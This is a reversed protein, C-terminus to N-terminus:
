DIRLKTIKVTKSFDKFILSVFYIGSPLDSIEKGNLMISYPRSQYERSYVLGGAMNYISVNVPFSSRSSFYIEIRDKFFSPTHIAVSLKDLFGSNVEEIEVASECITTEALSYSFIDFNIDQITSTVSQCSPAVSMVTPSCSTITPIVNQGICSSGNTDCKILIINPFQSKSGFSYTDGVIAYGGDRTRILTNGYNDGIASGIIKAWQINGDFNINITFINHFNGGFSKSYGTIVYNNDITQILHQPEEANVGGITKAWKLNGLSDFKAVLIDYSGSGFSLTYGTILYGKDSSQILSTYLPAEWDTGGLTKAWQLNGSSTLKVLLFDSGGAGFSHTNGAVAYGGDETQIVCMGIENDPGGIVKAWTLDGSSNLKVILFDNLGAGYSWTEGATIYGGDNTQFLSTGTDKSLGGIAKAWSLDGSSNFKVFLFNRDKKAGSETFGLFAYGSDSTLIASYPRDDQNQSMRLFKKSSLLNGTSDCTLIIVYHPETADAAAHGAIVYTGGKAQILCQGREIIPTGYAKVFQTQSLLFSPFLFYFLIFVTKM